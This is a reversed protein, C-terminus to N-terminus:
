NPEYLYCYYKEILVLIDKDLSISPSWDSTNYCNHERVINYYTLDNIRLNSKIKVIEWFHPKFPYDDPITAKLDIHIIDPLYGKIHNAIEPPFNLYPYYFNKTYHISVYFLQLTEAKFKIIIKENIKNPLQYYEELKVDSFENIFRQIRKFKSM